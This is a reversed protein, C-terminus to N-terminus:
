KKAGDMREVTASSPGRQKRLDAAVREAQKWARLVNLGLVKKVDDDSYGREHLHDRLGGWGDLSFGLQFADISAPAVGRRELYARAGGPAKQIAEKIAPALRVSLQPSDGRDPKTRLLQCVPCPCDDKHTRESM